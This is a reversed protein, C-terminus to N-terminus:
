TVSGAIAGATGGLVTGLLVLGIFKEPVEVRRQRWALWTAAAVFGLLCVFFVAWAGHHVLPLINSATPPPVNPPPRIDGGALVAATTANM